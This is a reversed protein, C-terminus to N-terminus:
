NPRDYYFDHNSIVQSRADGPCWCGHYQCFPYTRTMSSSPNWSGTDYWHPPIVYFTFVCTYTKQERQFIKARLPNLETQKNVVNLGLSFDAVKCVCNEVANEQIFVMINKNFNWKLKNMPTWYGPLVLGNMVQVLKPWSQLVGYSTM